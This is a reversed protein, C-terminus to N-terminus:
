FGDTFKTINNKRMKRKAFALVILGLFVMALMAPLAYNRILEEM